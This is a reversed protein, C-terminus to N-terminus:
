RVMWWVRNLITAEDINAAQMAEVGKQVSEPADTRGALYALHDVQQDTNKILRLWQVPLTEARDPFDWSLKDSRVKNTGSGGQGIQALLPKGNIDLKAGISRMAEDVRRDFPLDSKLPMAAAFAEAASREVANDIVWSNELSKPVQRNSAPSAIVLALARGLNFKSRLLDNVLRTELEALAENHPANMPDVVRGHLPQGHVMEWLSNVVGAALSPSGNLRASWDSLSTVADPGAIWQRPVEPMAVRRRGDALDFFLKRSNPKKAVSWGQRSPVLDRHLLGVLSWYDEQRGSGEIYADHCRTCRLDKNFILSALHRGMVGDDVSNSGAAMATLFATSTVSTGDIWSALSRDLPLSGSFAQAVESILDDRQKGKVRNIGGDTIQNLWGTAIQTAISDIAIKAQITEASSLDSASWAFGFLRSFRDAVQEAGAEDTPQIGIADWYGRMESDVQHSVLAMSEPPGLSEDSPMGLVSEPADVPENSENTPLVMPRGRPPQRPADALSDQKPETTSLDSSAAAAAVDNKTTSAVNQETQKAVSGVEIPLNRHNRVWLLGILSAAIAAAVFWWASKAIAPSPKAQSPRNPLATPRPAAAVPEERLRSLIKYTLDPPEAKGMAEVFLSDFAREAFDQDTLARDDNNPSDPNSQNSDTM